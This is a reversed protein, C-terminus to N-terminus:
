YTDFYDYSELKILKLLLLRYYIDFSVKYEFFELDKVGSRDKNLFYAFFNCSSFNTLFLDTVGKFYFLSM